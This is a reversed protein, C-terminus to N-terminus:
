PIFDKLEAKNPVCLRKGVWVVGQEDVSVEQAKGEQIKKKIGEISKHGKQAEKIGDPLTLKVELNTLFGPEVLELRFGEMEEYLAPLREKFMVNLTSAKRRLADVVVNAKGPHYQISLDYDKILELWRQQRMNLKQQTLIYKLNKHDTYIECRKGLLYYQWTKLAHMVAALELDHTAYNEEHPHLQRSLCAVVRGDQMLVWGLGTRSADCYIVFWKSIDPTALALATTM